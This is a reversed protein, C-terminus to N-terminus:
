RLARDAERTQGLKERVDDIVYRPSTLSQKSLLHRYTVVQNSNKDVNNHSPGGVASTAAGNAM